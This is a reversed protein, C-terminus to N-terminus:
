GAAKPRRTTKAAPADDTAPAPDATPVVDTDTATDTTPVVDTDTATDTTPFVDTDTADSEDVRGPQGGDHPAVSDDTCEPRVLRTDLMPEARLQALQEGSLDELAVRTTEAPWFRGARRFGDPRRSAVLVFPGPPHAPTLAGEHDTEM